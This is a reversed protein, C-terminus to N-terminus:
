FLVNEYLSSIIIIFDNMTITILQKVSVNLPWTITESWKRTSKTKPHWFHYGNVRIKYNLAMKDALCIFCHSLAGHPMLINAELPNLKIAAGVVAMPVVFILRKSGHDYTNTKFDSKASPQRLNPYM